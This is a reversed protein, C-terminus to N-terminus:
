MGPAGPPGTVLGGTGGTLACLGAPSVAQPAPEKCPADWAEPGSARGQAAGDRAHVHGAPAPPLRPWGSSTDGAGSQGGRLLPHPLPCFTSRPARPPRAPAMHRTHSLPLLSFPVDTRRARRNGRPPLLSLLLAPCSAAPPLPRGPASRGPDGTSPGPARARPGGHPEAGACEESGDTTKVHCAGCTAFGPSDGCVSTPVTTFGAWLPPFQPVSSLSKGLGCLPSTAATPGSLSPPKHEPGSVPLSLLWRGGDAWCGKGPPCPGIGWHLSLLM